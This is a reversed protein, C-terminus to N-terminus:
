EGTKVRQRINKCGHVATKPSRQYLNHENCHSVTAQLLSYRSHTYFLICLSALFHRCPPLLTEEAREFSPCRPLLHKTMVTDYLYSKM